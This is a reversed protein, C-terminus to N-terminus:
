NAHSYLHINQKYSNSIYYHNYLIEKEAGCILFHVVIGVFFELRRCGWPLMQQDILEDDHKVAVCFDYILEFDFDFINSSGSLDVYRSGKLM